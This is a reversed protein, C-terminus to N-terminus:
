AAPLPARASSSVFWTATRCSQRSSLSAKLATTAAYSRTEMGATSDFPRWVRRPPGSLQTTSYARASPVAPLRERFPSSTFTHRGRPVIPGNQRQRPASSAVAPWRLKAGFSSFFARLSIIAFPPYRPATRDPLGSTFEALGFGPDSNRSYSSSPPSITSVVSSSECDSWGGLPVANLQRGGALTGPRSRRVGPSTPGVRAASRSSLSAGGAWRRGALELAQNPLARPSNKGHRLHSMQILPSAFIVTTPDASSRHPYRFARSIITTSM